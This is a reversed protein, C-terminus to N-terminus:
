RERRLRSMIRLFSAFCRFSAAQDDDRRLGPGMFVSNRPGAGRGIERAAIM